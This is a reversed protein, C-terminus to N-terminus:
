GDVRCGAIAAVVEGLEEPRPAAVRVHAPLGFSTCDRVAIGRAALRRALGPARALVYNADSPQPCAGASSLAETLVGVHRRALEAGQAIHAEDAMGAVAAALAPASLPWAPVVGALGRLGEGVVAYGLRLGPLGLEKTLSRVVVANPPVPRADLLSTRAPAFAAFAEDVVFATHPHARCLEAIRAAPTAGGDPNGPNALVCAAAGPLSVDLAAWPPDHGPEGRVEEFAAGSTAANRAYESFSPGLAVCRDGPGLLAVSCLWLAWSAGPLPVVLPEPLDHRAAAAVRLSAADAEPYRDLPAERAAELAARSPGLPNLSASLDIRAGPGGGHTAPPMPQLRLRM